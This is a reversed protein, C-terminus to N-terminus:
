QELMVKQCQQIFQAREENSAHDNMDMSVKPDLCNKKTIEPMDYGCGTLGIVIMGLAAGM